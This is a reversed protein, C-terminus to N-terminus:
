TNQLSKYDQTLVPLVNLCEHLNEPALHAYRQTIRTDSHGLLTSVHYLPIAQKILFSAFTHRLDHIRVHGIESRDVACRFGKYFSKVHTGTKENYFVYKKHNKLRFLAHISTDNLPKYITKKNKSLSNRIIFYQENIFVNDWTLTLLEGSRCGTNLLLLIYDHLTQNGYRRAAVLLKSCESANLFRPIFDHEFLKFGNFVNKFNANHKHKLYYNFASKIVHLERNITSNKVGELARLTCYDNIVEITIEDFQYFYELNKFKEAYTHNSQFLGNRLYFNMIEQVNM